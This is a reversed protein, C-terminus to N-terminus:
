VAEHCKNNSVTTLYSIRVKVFVIEKIDLLIIEDDVSLGAKVAVRHNLVVKLFETEDQTLKFFCGLTQKVLEVIVEFHVNVLILLILFDLSSILIRSNFGFWFM